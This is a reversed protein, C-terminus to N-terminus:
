CLYSISGGVFHACEFHFEKTYLEASFALMENISIPM